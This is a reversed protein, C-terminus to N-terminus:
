PIRPSEHGIFLSAYPACTPETRLAVMWHSFRNPHAGIACARITTVIAAASDTVNYIARYKNLALGAEKLPQEPANPSQFDEVLKGLFRLFAAAINQSRQAVHQLAPSKLAVHYCLTSGTPPHLRGRQKGQRNEISGDPDISKVYGDRRHERATSRELM